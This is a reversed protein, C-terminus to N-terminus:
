SVEPVESVEDRKVRNLQGKKRLMRTPFKPSKTGNQM